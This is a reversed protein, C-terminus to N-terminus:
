RTSHVPCTASRRAHRCASRAAHRRALHFTRATASGRSGFLFQDVPGTGAPAAPHPHLVECPPQDMGRARDGACLDDPQRGGQRDPPRSDLGAPVPDPPRSGAPPVAPREEKQSSRRWCARRSRATALILYVTGPTMAITSRMSGDAGVILSHEPFYVETPESTAFLLNALPQDVYFTQVNAPQFAFALAGPGLLSPPGESAQNPQALQSFATSVDFPSGSRLTTIKSTARSREWNQGTWTDFTMGLFYGPRDARVRM